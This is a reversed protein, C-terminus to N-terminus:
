EAAQAFPQKLEALRAVHGAIRGDVYRREAAHLGLRKDRLLTIALEHQRIERTVPDLSARYLRSAENGRRANERDMARRMGAAAIDYLSARRRGFVRVELKRESRAIQIAERMVTKADVPVTELFSEYSQSTM